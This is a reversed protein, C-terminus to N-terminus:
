ATLSELLAALSPEDPRIIALPTMEISGLFPHELAPVDQLALDATMLHSCRHVLASALHIADPLKLRPVRARLLAALDVVPADVECVSLWSSPQAWSSYVSAAIADGDRLPKVMLEAFALRSTIFLPPLDREALVVSALLRGTLTLPEGLSILVNTDLYIRGPPRM